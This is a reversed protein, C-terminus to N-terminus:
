HINPELFKRDAPWKSHSMCATSKFGKKCITADEQMKSNQSKKEDEAKWSDGLETM